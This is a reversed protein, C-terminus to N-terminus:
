KKRTKRRSKPFGDKLKSFVELMAMEREYKELAPDEPYGQKWMDFWSIAGEPKDDAIMFDIQCGCLAGFETVHLEQKKLMQDLIAKAKELENAQIAKRASIVQGFFYDPFRSPIEDAIAGAEAHKGQMSLAVALNNLLGPEDEQTHIAYRLFGEAKAGDGERLAYIAQEMLRQASPKLNPKEPSDYYIQFGLMMIAKWEGELWLDVAEGSKFVGHRSLIQSAELRLADSGEQGLAFDKLKALLMPHASMDVLKLALDRSLADGSSLAAPVFYLIEPHDNMFVRMKEQFAMDNKQKAARETASTLSGISSRPLWTDLSFAQPCIREHLPKKLEELNDAAPSFYLALKLCKQWYMRAKSANGKRYEAVACWHWVYENLQDLEKAQKAEDLLALVGDDDGVFSLAEAKKVWRDAAEAKSDKLKKILASAVDGKGQMYLFRTLNSLAHVNDPQLDLVKQSTEIAAAFNGELWYVQSLNNLVPVFSPRQEILVKALQKGREYNGLEMLVQLEEHKAAFDLGAALSYDLQSLSETLGAELQPITKQVDAAQEDRPWQRLFQRFTQLALAMRGNVLYAGALGLKVDARNPVLKHLQYIALLYGHQNGMDLCANAMFGLVDPQRPFKQDLAQLLDLASQSENKLLLKEAEELGDRLKRPLNSPDIHTPFNKKSM